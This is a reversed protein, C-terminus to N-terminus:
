KGKREKSLLLHALTFNITLATSRHTAVLTRQQFQFTAKRVKTSPFNFHQCWLRAESRQWWFRQQQQPGTMSSMGTLVPLWMMLSLTHSEYKSIVFLSLFLTRNWPKWFRNIFDLLLLRTNAGQLINSTSSSTGRDTAVLVIRSVYMSFTQEAVWGIYLTTCKVCCGGIYYTTNM